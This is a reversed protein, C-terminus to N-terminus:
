AQFRRHLGHFKTEGVSVVVIRKERPRRSSLFMGRDPLANVLAPGNYLLDMIAAEIRALVRRRASLPALFIRMANLQARVQRAHKPYSQLFSNLRKWREESYGSYGSWRWLEVREGASARKSDLINYVGSMYHKTHDFIRSNFSDNTLGAAYILYGNEHPFTFLYIGPLKAEPQNFVVTENRGCWRFPGKWTLLYKKMVVSCRYSSM